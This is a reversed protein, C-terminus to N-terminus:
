GKPYVEVVGQDRTGGLVCCKGFGQGGMYGICRRPVGLGGSVGWANGLWGLVGEFM